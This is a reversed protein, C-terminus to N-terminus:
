AIRLLSSLACQHKPNITHKISVSFVCRSNFLNLSKNMLDIKFQSSFRCDTPLIEVEQYVEMESLTVEKCRIAINYRNKNLTKYCSRLMFDASFLHKLKQTCGIVSYRFEVTDTKRHQFITRCQSRVM